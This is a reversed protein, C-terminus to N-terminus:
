FFSIADRVSFDLIRDVSRDHYEIGRVTRKFRRGRCAPCAERGVLEGRLPARVWGAGACEECAGKGSELLFDNENLGAVRAQRVSAFLKAVARGLGTASFVLRVTDRAASVGAEARYNVSRVLSSSGKTGRGGKTGSRPLQEAISKLFRTKGSGSRGVI